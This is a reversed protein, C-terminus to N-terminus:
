VFNFKPKLKSKKAAAAPKNKKPVSSLRKRAAAGHGQLKSEFSKSVISNSAEDRAKRIQAILAKENEASLTDKDKESQIQDGLKIDDTERSLNPEEVEVNASNVVEGAGELEEAAVSADEFNLMAMPNYTFERSRQNLGSGYILNSHMMQLYLDPNM